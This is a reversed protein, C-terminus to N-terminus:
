GKYRYKGKKPVFDSAGDRFEPNRSNFDELKIRRAESMMEDTYQQSHGCHECVIPGSTGFYWSPIKLLLEKMDKNCEPCMFTGSKHKHEM